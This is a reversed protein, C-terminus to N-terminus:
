LMSLFIATVGWQSHRSNIRHTTEKFESNETNDAGQRNM